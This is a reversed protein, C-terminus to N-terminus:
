LVQNAFRYLTLCNMFTINLELFSFVFNQTKKKPRTWKSNGSSTFSM